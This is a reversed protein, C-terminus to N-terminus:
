GSMALECLYLRAMYYIICMATMACVSQIIYVCREVEKSPPRELGDDEDDDTEEWKSKEITFVCLYLFFFFPHFEFVVTSSSSFSFFLFVTVSQSCSGSRM